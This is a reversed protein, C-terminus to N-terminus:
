LKLTLLMSWNRHLLLLAQRKITARDTDAHKSLRYMSLVKWLRPKAMATLYEALKYGRHRSESFSILSRCCQSSCLLRGGKVEAHKLLSHQWTAMLKVECRLSLDSTLTLTMTSFKLTLRDLFVLNFHSRLRYFENWLMWFSAQQFWQNTLHMCFCVQHACVPQQLAEVNIQLVRKCHRLHSPSNRGPSTSQITRCRHRWVARVSESLPKSCSFYLRYVDAFLSFFLSVSLPHPFYFCLNSCGYKIFVRQM